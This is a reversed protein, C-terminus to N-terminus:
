SDLRNEIPLGPVRAFERANETVVSLGHSLAHAAILMGNIANSGGLVRGRPV